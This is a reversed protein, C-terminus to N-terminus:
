TRKQKDIYKVKWINLFARIKNNKFYFASVVVELHPNAMRMVQMRLTLWDKPPCYDTISHIPLIMPEGLFFISITFIRQCSFVKLDITFFLSKKQFIVLPIVALLRKELVTSNWFDIIFLLPLTM